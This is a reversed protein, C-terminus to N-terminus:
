IYNILKGLAIGNLTYIKVSAHKFINNKLFINESFKSSHLVENFAPMMIMRLKKNVKKYRGLAMKRDIGATLWVAGSTISATSKKLTHLYHTHGLVLWDCLMLKEDVWCHGHALGIKGDLVIGGAGFVKVKNNIEALTEINGDHNGKVIWIEFHKSLEQYFEAVEESVEYIDDKADGLIILTDFQKGEKKLAVLEKLLQASLKGGLFMGEKRFRSEVGAHVDSVILFNNYALVPKSYVFRLPWQMNIKPM